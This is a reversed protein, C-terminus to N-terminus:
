AWEYIVWALGRTPDTARAGLHHRCSPALGPPISIARRVASVSGQASRNEKHECLQSARNIASLQELPNVQMGGVGRLSNFVQKLDPVIKWLSSM